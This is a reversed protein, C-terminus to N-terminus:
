WLREVGSLGGLFLDDGAFDFHSIRHTPSTKNKTSPVKNKAHKAERLM